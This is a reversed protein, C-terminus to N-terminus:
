ADGTAEGAAPAPGCVRGIAPRPVSLLQCRRALDYVPGGGIPEAKEGPPWDPPEDVGLDSARTVVSPRVTM